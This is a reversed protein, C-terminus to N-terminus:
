PHTLDPSSWILESASYSSLTHVCATICVSWICWDWWQPTWHSFTIIGKCGCRDTSQLPLMYQINPLFYLQHILLLLFPFIHYILVSKIPFFVLICLIFQSLRQAFIETEWDQHLHWCLFTFFLNSMKEKHIKIFFFKSLYIKRNM